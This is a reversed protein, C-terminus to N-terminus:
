SKRGRALFISIQTSQNLDKSDSCCKEGVCTVSADQLGASKLWASIDERAFGLWRDHQEVRLFEFDHKDLDTIVLVGGPKLIRTMEQIAEVPNEVHHLYMNAFVSDVLGDEIPLKGADGLRCELGHFDSLKRALVDLMAQSQDVAIVRAGKKLLGETMFGTGAGVDVALAGVGVGSAKLAKERLNESFFSTRMEDWRTSVDDFYQKSETMPNM